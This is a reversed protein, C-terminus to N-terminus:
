ARVAAVADDDYLQELDAGNSEVWAEMAPESCALASAVVAGADVTL